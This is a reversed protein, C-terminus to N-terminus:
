YKVLVVTAAVDGRSSQKTLAICVHVMGYWVMGAAVVLSSGASQVSVSAISGIGDGM